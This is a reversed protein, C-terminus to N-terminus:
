ARLIAYLADKLHVRRKKLAAIYADWHGENNEEIREVESNVEHYAAFLQAFHDNNIKLQSIRDAFEPLEHFLDHKEGLM